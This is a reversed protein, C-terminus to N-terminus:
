ALARLLQDLAAGFGDFGRPREFLLTPLTALTLYATSDEVTPGFVSNAILLQLREIPPVERVRAQSGWDLYVLGALPVQSPVPPPRLRHRIRGAFIQIYEGGLVAATEDRLDVSRPGAFVTTGELMLLDDSVIGYGDRALWGLTSSKGAEKTGLVAWAKGHVVVGGGHLIQRARWRTAVAAPLGIFPHVVLDDSLEHDTRFTVELTPQRELRISERDSLWIVAHEDDFFLEAIGLDPPHGPGTDAKARVVHLQPWDDGAPRLVESPSDLGTVAFGYIGCAV